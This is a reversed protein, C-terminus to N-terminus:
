FAWLAPTREKKCIVSRYQIYSIDNQKRNALVEEWKKVFKSQKKPLIKLYPFKLERNLKNCNRLINIIKEYFLFQVIIVREKKGSKEGVSDEREVAINSTDMDLSKGLSEPTKM